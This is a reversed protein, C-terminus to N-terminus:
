DNKKIHSSLIRRQDAIAQELLRVQEEMTHNGRMGEDHLGRLGMTYINEFGAAEKVRADLKNYITKRNTGYDWEGDRDSRWEFSSLNYFLLPECHSTTIMIGYEDAVLKNEPHSYFTHSCLHMAPALMNCKLRLLLECVRRYTKPGISGVEPEYNKASWEYLGWDEDNIFIGRYRVSPAKSVYDAKIYIDSHKDVPIDAWWYWPSVGMKESLSLLGYAAGRPDSGAVVLVNDYRSVPKKLTKIIFQETGNRLPSLDLVGEKSLYRIHTSRITGFILLNKGSWRKHSIELTDGTVMRLDNNFMRAVNGILKDDKTDTILTCGTLPMMGDHPEFAESISETALTRLPAILVMILIFLSVKMATRYDTKIKM